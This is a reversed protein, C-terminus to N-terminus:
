LHYSKEREQPAFLFVPMWAPRKAVYPGWERKKM